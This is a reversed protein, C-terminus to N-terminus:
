EYHAREDSSEATHEIRGAISELEEQSYGDWRKLADDHRSAKRLHSKEVAERTRTYRDTADTLPRAFFPTPDEDAAKRATDLESDSLQGLVEAIQSGTQGAKAVADLGHRFVYYVGYAFNGFLFIWLLVWVWVPVM